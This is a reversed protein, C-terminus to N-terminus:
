RASFMDEDDYMSLVVVKIEPFSERLARTAEVGGMNQLRLDMVM